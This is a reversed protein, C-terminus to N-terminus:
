PSKVLDLADTGSKPAAPFRAGVPTWDYQCGEPTCDRENSAVWDTWPGCVEQEAPVLFGPENRLDLGINVYQAFPVIGVRVNEGDMIQEVLEAAAAKLAELKAGAMSGTKDLVLIVELPPSDARM